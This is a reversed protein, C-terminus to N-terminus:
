QLHIFKGVNELMPRILQVEELLINRLFLLKIYYIYIIFYKLHYWVCLLNTKWSLKRKINVHLNILYIKIWGKFTTMCTINLQVSPLNPYCHKHLCFHSIYSSQENENMYWTNIQHLNKNDSIIFLYQKNTYNHKIGTCYKREEDFFPVYMGFNWMKPFYISNMKRQISKASLKQRRIGAPEQPKWSVRMPYPGVLILTWIKFKKNEDL